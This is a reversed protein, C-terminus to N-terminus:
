NDEVRDYPYNCNHLWIMILNRIHQNISQFHTENNKFYISKIKLINCSLVKIIDGGEYETMFNHIYELEALTTVANIGNM